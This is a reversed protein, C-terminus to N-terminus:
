QVAAQAINRRFRIRNEANMNRHHARIDRVFNQLWAIRPLIRAGVVFLRAMQRFQETFIELLEGGSHRILNFCRPRYSLLRLRFSTYRLEALPVPTLYPARQAFRRSVYAM